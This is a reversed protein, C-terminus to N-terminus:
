DVEPPSRSVGDGATCEEPPGGVHGGETINEDEAGEAAVKQEHCKLVCAYVAAL